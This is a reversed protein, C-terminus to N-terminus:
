RRMHLMRQNAIPHFGQVCLLFLEPAKLAPPDSNSRCFAMALFLSNASLSLREGPELALGHLNSTSIAGKCRVHLFDSLRM